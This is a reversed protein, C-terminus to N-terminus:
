RGLWLGAAAPSGPHSQEGNEALRELTLVSQVSPAIKSKRWEYAANERWLVVCRRQYRIVKALRRCGLKLEM